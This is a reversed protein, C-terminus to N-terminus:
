RGVEAQRAQIRALWADLDEEAASWSEFGVPRAEDLEGARARVRVTAAVQLATMYTM